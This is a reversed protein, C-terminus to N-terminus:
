YSAIGKAADLLFQVSWEKRARASALWAEQDFTSKFRRRVKRALQLVDLSDLALSDMLSDAVTIEENALSPKVEKIMDSIVALESLVDISM